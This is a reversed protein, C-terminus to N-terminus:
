KLAFIKIIFSKQYYLFMNQLYKKTILYFLTPYSVLINTIASPTDFHAWKSWNRVGWDSDKKIDDELELADIKIETGGIIELSPCVSTTISTILWFLPTFSDPPHFVTVICSDWRGSTERRKFHYIASKVLTWSWDTSSERKWHSM